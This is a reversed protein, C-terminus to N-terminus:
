LGPISATLNTRFLVIPAQSTDIVGSLKADDVFNIIFFTIDNTFITFLYPYLIFGQPVGSGATVSSSLLDSVRVSREHLYNRTWALLSGCLGFLELKTLLIKHTNGHHGKRELWSTPYVQFCPQLGSWRTIGM